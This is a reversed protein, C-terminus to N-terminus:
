EEEKSGMYPELQLWDSVNFGWAAPRHQLSIQLSHLALLMQDLRKNVGRVELVLADMAGFTEKTQLRGEAWAALDDKRYMINRGRRFGLAGPNKARARTQRLADPKMQLFGAAEDTTLLEAM